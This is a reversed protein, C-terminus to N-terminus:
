GFGRRPKPEFIQDQFVQGVFSTSSAIKTKGENARIVKPEM